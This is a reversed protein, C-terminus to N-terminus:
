AIARLKKSAKTLIELKKGDWVVTDEIRLGFKGPYYVGPEITFPVNKAVNAKKDSFVPAEHVELGIGHGLSHIFAKQAAGLKKKTVEALKQFTVNPQAKKCAELQAQLLLDYAQLEEQKPKGLYLVRTMDACYNQWKAGFDLLLFGKSLKTQNTVHHPIAANKGFAAITPFALEAGQSKIYKELFFAVDLETKLKKKPLEKILTNLAATTIACAKKIAVLEKKTKTLRLQQLEASLDIFKAKFHKKFRELEGVTLSSKNIGVLKSKVFEKYWDKSVEKVMIGKIKPKKDLKTIFLTAAKPTIVLYGHSFQKQTFYVFNPDEATLIVIDIKKQRLIKQFQTLKM